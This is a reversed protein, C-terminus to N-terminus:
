DTKVHLAGPFLEQHKELYGQHKQRTPPGHSVSTAWHRPSPRARLLTRYRPLYSQTARGDVQGGPRHRRLERVGM